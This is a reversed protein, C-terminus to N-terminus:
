AEMSSSTWTQHLIDHSETVSWCYTECHWTWTHDMGKSSHWICLFVAPIKHILNRQKSISMHLSQLCNFLTDNDEYTGEMDFTYVNKKQYWIICSALEPLCCICVLHDDFKQNKHNILSRFLRLSQQYNEKRICYLHDTLILSWKYWASQPYLSDWNM